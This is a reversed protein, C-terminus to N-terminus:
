KTRIYTKIGKGRHILLNQIVTYKYYMFAHMDIDLFLPELGQKHKKLGRRKGSKLARNIILYYPSSSLTWMLHLNKALLQVVELSYAVSGPM